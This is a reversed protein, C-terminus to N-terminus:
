ARAADGSSFRTALQALGIFGFANLAGHTPVMDVVTLAPVWPFYHNAAWAVALVMAVLPSLSSALWVLKWAGRAQNLERLHLLAVGWAGLTMLVAGGVQALALRFVFGSAVVPPAIFVLWRVTEALRGPWRRAARSALALTAAGAYTFHLATLKVIPERIDFLVLELRSTVLALSATGAFGAAMAAWREGRLLAGVGSVVTLAVWPAVCLAALPGADLLLGLLVGIAAAFWALHRRPAVDLAVPLVLAVGLVLAVNMVPIMLAGLM